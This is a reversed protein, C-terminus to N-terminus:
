DFGLGFPNLLMSNPDDPIRASLHGFTSQEYGLYFCARYATALEVRVDWEEKSVTKRVNELLM